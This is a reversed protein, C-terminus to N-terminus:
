RGHNEHFGHAREAAERAACADSFSVFYGVDAGAIKARWKQSQKHWHVGIRGSTNSSPMSRNRLNEASTVDRLNTIRNDDRIHNEHDIQGAPWEGYHLAWAIRHAKYLRGCIIGVERYGCSGSISGAAAGVRAKGRSVKWTLVGTEPDYALLKRLEEIPLLKKPAM